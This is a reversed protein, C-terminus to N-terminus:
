FKSLYDLADEKYSDGIPLEKDNIQIFNKNFSFIFSTNIIFSRHIRIFCTPLEKLFSVLSQKITIVGFNLTHIKLYDKLSEIYEIDSFELKVKKKDFSVLIYSKTTNKQPEANAIGKKLDLFKQITKYFREFTIPKVLYDFVDLDFAQVAYDRYATTFVIKPPNRLTKVFDNGKLVPMEIDLFLLDIKLEKLYKSAEIATKCEGAIEFNPLKSLHIKVLERAHIEDDVILCKYKM